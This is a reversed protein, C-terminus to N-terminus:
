LRYFTSVVSDWVSITGPTATSLEEESSIFIYENCLCIQLIDTTSAKWHDLLKGTQLFTLM